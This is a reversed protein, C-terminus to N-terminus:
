TGFSSSKCFHTKSNCVLTKYVSEFISLIVLVMPKLCSSDLFFIFLDDGGIFFDFIFNSMHYLHRKQIYFHSILILISHNNFYYLFSSYSCFSCLSIFQNQVPLRTRGQHVSLTVVARYCSLPCSIWRLCKDTTASLSSPWIILNAAHMFLGIWFPSSFPWVVVWFLVFWVTLLGSFILWTLWFLSFFTRRRM